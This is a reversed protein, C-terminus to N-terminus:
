GSKTPIAFKEFFYFCVVGKGDSRTCNLLRCFLPIKRVKTYIHGIHSHTSKKFRRISVLLLHKQFQFRTL